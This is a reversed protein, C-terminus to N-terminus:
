TRLISGEHVPNPSKYFLGWFSAEGGEVMASSPLRCGILPGNGHQCGSRLSGSELVILFLNRINILKGTQLIENYCALCVLISGTCTTSM